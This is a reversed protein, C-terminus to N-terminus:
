TARSSDGNSKEFTTIHHSLSASVVRQRQEPLMKVQQEKVCVCKV